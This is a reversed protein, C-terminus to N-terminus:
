FSWNRKKTLYTNTIYKYTLNIIASYFQVFNYQNTRATRINLTRPGLNGQINNTFDYNDTLYPDLTHYKSDM